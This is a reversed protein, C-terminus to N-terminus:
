PGAFALMAQAARLNETINVNIIAFREPVDKNYIRSVSTYIYDIGHGNRSWGVQGNSALELKLECAPTLAAFRREVLSSLTIFYYWGDSSKVAKADDGRLRPGM